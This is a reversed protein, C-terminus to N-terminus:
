AGGFSEPHTIPGGEVHMQRYLCGRTLTDLAPADALAAWDRM